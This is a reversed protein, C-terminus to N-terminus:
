PSNVLLKSPNALGGSGKYHQVQILKEQNRKHSETM